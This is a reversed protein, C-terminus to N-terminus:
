PWEFTEAPKVLSASALISGNTLVRVHGPPQELDTVGETEGGPGPELALEKEFVADVLDQGPEAAMCARLMQADQGLFLCDRDGFLLTEVMRQLRGHFREASPPFHDITTTGDPRVSAHMRFHFHDAEGFGDVWIELHGPQGVFPGPWADTAVVLEGDLSWRLFRGVYRREELEQRRVRYVPVQPSRLRRRPGLLVLRALPAYGLKRAQRALHARIIPEASEPFPGGSPETPPDHVLLTSHARKGRRDALRYNFAVVWSKLNCDRDKWRTRINKAQRLWRDFTASGFDTYAMRAKLELPYFAGSCLGDSASFPAALYDPWAQGKLARTVTLQGDRFEGRKPLPCFWTAGAHQHMFALGLFRGFRNSLTNSQEEDNSLRSGRFRHPSADPDTCHLFDELVAWSPKCREVVTYYCHIGRALNVEVAPALRSISESVEKTALGLQFRGDTGFREQLDAADFAPLSDM